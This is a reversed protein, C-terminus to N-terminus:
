PTRLTKEMEQRLRDFAAALKGMNKKGVNLDGTGAAKEMEFVVGRLAEAGVNLAAGRIAHAAMRAAGADAADLADQLDQIRRPITELFLNLMDRVLDEDDMCRHLLAAHDFVPLAEDEKQRAEIKAEREGRGNDEGTRGATGHFRSGGAGDEKERSRDAALWKSLVRELEELNVPKVLYDDMGAEFCRERDRDMAGATMAIIPIRSSSQLESTEPAEGEADRIERTAELGDMEPMQVDM